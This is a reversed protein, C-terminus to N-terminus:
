HNPRKGETTKTNSAKSQRTNRRSLWGNTLHDIWKRAMKSVEVTNLANEQFLALDGSHALSNRLKEIARLQKESKRRSDPLNGLRLLVERKDCFDSATILDIALNEANLQQWKARIKKQRNPTLAELWRDSGQFRLRITETMLLELHTIFLFLAPRVPLKQLDSLTVIGDIRTGRVVLRSPREDAQEIFTLIGVDSSILCREDLPMMEEGATRYKKCNTRLQRLPLLGAIRGEATVPLHDFTELQPNDLLPGIPAGTECCILGPEFTAILSVTLGHEVSSLVGASDIDLPRAAWSKSDNSYGFGAEPPAHEMSCGTHSTASLTFIADLIQLITSPRLPLRFLYAAMVGIVVPPRKRLPDWRPHITGRCRLAETAGHTGERGHGAARCLTEPDFHTDLRGMAPTERRGIQSRGRGFPVEEESVLGAEFIRQVDLLPILVTGTDHPPPPKEAAPGMKVCRKRPGYSAQPEVPERAVTSAPRNQELFSGM